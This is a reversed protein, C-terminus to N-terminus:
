FYINSIILEMLVFAIVAVIASNKRTKYLNYIGNKDSKATGGILNTAFGNNYVTIGLAKNKEEMYVGDHILPHIGRSCLLTFVCLLTPWLRDLSQFSCFVCTLIICALYWLCHIFLYEVHKDTWGLLWDEDHNEYDKKAEIFGSLYSMCLCSCLVCFLWTVM